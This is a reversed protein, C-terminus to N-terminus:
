EDMCLMDATVVFEDVGEIDEADEHKDRCKTVVHVSIYVFLSIIGAAFFIFLIVAWAPVTCAMTDKDLKTAKNKCYKNAPLAPYQECVGDNTSVTFPLQVRNPWEFDDKQQRQRQKIANQKINRKQQEDKVHFVMEEVPILSIYDVEAFGGSGAGGFQGCDGGNALIQTTSKNYVLQETQFYVSGGAGSAGKQGAYGSVKVTGNIFLTNVNVYVSGGAFGGIGECNDGSFGTLQEVYKEYEPLAFSLIKYPKGQQCGGFNRNSGGCCNNKRSTPRAGRVTINSINANSSTISVIPNYVDDSQLYLQGSQNVNLTSLSIRRATMKARQSMKFLASELLIEGFAEAIKEITATQMFVGFEGIVISDEFIHLMQMVTLTYVQEVLIQTQGPNIQLNTGQVVFKMVMISRGIRLYAREAQELENKIVIGMQVEYPVNFVSLLKSATIDFGSVPGSIQGEIIVIGAQIEETKLQAGSGVRITGPWLSVLEIIETYEPSNQEATALVQIQQQQEETYIPSQIVLREVDFVTVFKSAILNLSATTFKSNLGSGSSFQSYGDVELNCNVFSASRSVFNGKVSATTEKLDFITINLSPVLLTSNDAILIELNIQQAKFVFSSNCISLNQVTFHAKEFVNANTGTLSFNVAEFQSYCSFVSNNQLEINEAYFTVMQGIFLEESVYLTKATFKVDTQAIIGILFIRTAQLQTFDLSCQSLTSVTHIQGRVIEVIGYEVTLKMATVDNAILTGIVKLQDATIVDSHLVSHSLVKVSIQSILPGTIRLVSSDRMELYDCLIQNSVVNVAQELYISDAQLFGISIPVINYEGSFTIKVPNQELISGIKTGYNILVSPTQNQNISSTIDITGDTFLLEDTLPQVLSLYLQGQVNFQGLHLSQTCFIRSIGPVTVNNLIKNPCGYCVESQLSQGAQIDDM